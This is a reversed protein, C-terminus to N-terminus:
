FKKVDSLITGQLEEFQAKSIIGKELLSHWKDLQNICETRYIVTKGPSLTVGSTASANNTKFFPKSPPVEFSDHKKLQIMHGWVRLQEPTYSSAHKKELEDVITQVESM